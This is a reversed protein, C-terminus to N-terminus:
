MNIGICSTNDAWKSDVAYVTAQLSSCRCPADTGCTCRSLLTCRSHSLVAAIFFTSSWTGCVATFIRLSMLVCREALKMYVFLRTECNTDLM